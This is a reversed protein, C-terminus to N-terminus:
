ERLAGKVLRDDGDNPAPQLKLVACMLNYLHINEAEPLVVGHRFAPGYGIFIGRMTTLAPDYGHDGPLYGAHAYRKRLREFNARTGIHWGEDPLVWVPSIRLNGKLQFRAPLDAALCAKVHPIKEFIRVLSVADGTLPRLALVSGESEVQVTKLDILDDLIVTRAVNTATMGHDSVIMLNPEFGAARVRALLAAIRDDSLKIAAAVQPTAPGYTHGAGNIEELYIAILAPRQEPPLALWGVLEELRKEFPISYDYSKWYTPRVGAIEAESGVWFSAAAKRGQKIATVWVPEGGWWRPDRLATPQFYHFFQGLAPDFFDNNIIGHHAPHLGTVISYHNPFTNSPFMPILARVSVGDRKLARLTLSEAPFLDGYDWRFGDLSLLILPSEAGSGNAFGAALVVFLFLARFNM